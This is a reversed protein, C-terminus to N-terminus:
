RNSYIISAVTAYAEDRQAYNDINIEAYPVGAKRFTEILFYQARHSWEAICDPEDILHWHQVAVKASAHKREVVREAIHDPDGTLVILLSTPPLSCVFNVADTINEKDPEFLRLVSHYLAEDWILTKGKYDSGSDIYQKYILAKLFNFYLHMCAAESYGLRAYAKRALSLAEPYDTILRNKVESLPIALNRKELLSAIRPYLPLRQLTSEIQYPVFKSLGSIRHKALTTADVIGKIHSEKSLWQVLYSKGVGPAGIIEVQNM